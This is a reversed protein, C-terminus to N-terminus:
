HVHTQTPEPLQHHVPYGPTSCDMPDRLSNPVVSCSFQVSDETKLWIILCYKASKVKNKIKYRIYFHHCGFSMIPFFQSWINTRKHKCM